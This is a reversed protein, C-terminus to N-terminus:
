CGRQWKVIMQMQPTTQPSPMGTPDNRRLDDLMDLVDTGKAYGHRALWCGIVTGTRGHGGWCHVYVTHGNSISADIADLIAVMQNKTPKGM